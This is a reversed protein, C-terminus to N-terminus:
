GVLEFTHRVPDICLIKQSESNCPEFYIKGDHGVIGNAQYKSSGDLEPSLTEVTGTESHVCLVHRASYPAFYIRGGSALVGSAIYKRKGALKPGLMEARRLRPDVSLVQLARSPAFYLMGNPAVVGNAEYKTGDEDQFLSEKSSRRKRQKLTKGTHKDKAEVDEDDDDEDAQAEHQANVLKGVGGHREAAAKSKSANVLDAVTQAAALELPKASSGASPSSMRQLEVLLLQHAQQLEEEKERLRRKYDEEREVLQEQTYRAHTVHDQALRQLQASQQDIESDKGYLTAKLEELEFKLNNVDASDVTTNLDAPAVKDNHGAEIDLYPPASGNFVSAGMIDFQQRIARAEAPRRSPGRVLKKAKRPSRPPSRPPSTPVQKASPAKSSADNFPAAQKGVQGEDEFSGQLMTAIRAVIPSHSVLGITAGMISLLVSNGVIVIFLGLSSSPRKETLQSGLKCLSSLMYFFGDGVSWSESAALFCGSFLALGALLLPLFAFICRLLSPITECGDKLVTRVLPCAAGLGLLCCTTAIMWTSALIDWLQGIITTPSATVIPAALDVINSAFYVYGVGATWGEFWGLVEGVIISEVQVVVPIIVLLTAFAGIMDKRNASTDGYEVTCGLLCNLFKLSRAPVLIGDEFLEPRHERWYIVYIVTASGIIVVLSFVIAAVLLGEEDSAAM